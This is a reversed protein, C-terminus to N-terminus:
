FERKRGAFLLTGYHYEPTRGEARSLIKYMEPVFGEKLYPAFWDGHLKIPHGASGPDNELALLDEENTLDQGIVLWGGLKTIKIVHEMCLAADRVHDLVNIMVVLDFYDNRYPIEELPHDDLACFGRQYAEAVFTLHYKVYTRILPDSLFLHGIKSGSLIHRINTYPGCGVEIANDMEAPLFRYDQFQSKWWLNWDDGRYRSALGLSRLIRWIWNKGLRARLNQTHDWHSKEWAQAIRWIDKSVQDRNSCDCTM